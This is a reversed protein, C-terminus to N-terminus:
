LLFFTFSAPTSVLPCLFFLESNDAGKAHKRKEELCKESIAKPHDWEGMMPPLGLCIWLWIGPEQCLSTRLLYSPTAKSIPQTGPGLSTWHSLVSIIWLVSANGKGSSAGPPSLAGPLLPQLYQCSLPCPSSSDWKDWSTIRSGEMIWM